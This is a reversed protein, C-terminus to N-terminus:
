QGPPFVMTVSDTQATAAMDLDGKLYANTANIVGQCSATIRLNIDKLRPGDLDSFYTSIAEGIVGSCTGEAAGTVATELGELADGLSTAHDSVKALVSSVGSPSIDWSSM